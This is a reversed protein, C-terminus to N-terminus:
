ARKSIGFGILGISLLVLLGPEPVSTSTASWSFIGSGTTDGTFTWSADTDAFGTATLTGVGNLVLFNVPDNTTGRVVDTLEFAFIDITWFDTIPAVFPDFQFDAISGVQGDLGAFDGNATTVRFADFGFFDFDIGTAMDASSVTDGNSDVAYFGGTMEMEGTILPLAVVNSFTFVFFAGCLLIQKIFKNM